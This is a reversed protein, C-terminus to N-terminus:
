LFLVKTWLRASVIDWLESLCIEFSCHTRNGWIEAKKEEKNGETLQSPHIEVGESM